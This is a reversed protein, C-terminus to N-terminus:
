FNIKDPDREEGVNKAYWPKEVELGSLKAQHKVIEELLHNTKTHKVMMEDLKKQFGFVAFPLFIWLLCVLGAVMVLGAIFLDGMGFGDEFLRGANM